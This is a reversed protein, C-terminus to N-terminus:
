IRPLWVQCRKPEPCRRDMVALLEAVQGPYLNALNNTEGLDKSLDFLEVNEGNRVLKWDGARVAERIEGNVSHWGFYLSREPDVELSFLQGAAVDLFSQHLDVLTMPENVVTPIRDPQRIILPVKIGGEYVDGKHGRLGLTGWFESRPLSIGNDSTFVILTNDLIGLQKLKAVIAGVQADLYSISSAYDQEVQPWPQAEYLSVPVQYDLDQNDVHPINSSFNLFFPGDSNDELFQLAYQLYLDPAYGTVNVLQGNHWLQAPYKESEDAVSHFATTYGAELPMLGSYQNGLGWKGFLGCSYGLNTLRHAITVDGEELFPWYLSVQQDMYRGTHFCNRMPTCVPAPAYAQEFRRGSAALADINPTAILSTPNYANLEACGLDDALIFIINPPQSTFQFRLACPLLAASQLFQRRNM